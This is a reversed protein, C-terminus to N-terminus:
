RKQYKDGIGGLVRLCHIAAQRLVQIMILTEHIQMITAKQYLLTKLNNSEVFDVVSFLKHCKDLPYKSASNSLISPRGTNWPRSPPRGM